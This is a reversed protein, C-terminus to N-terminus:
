DNMGFIMKLCKGCCCLVVSFFDTFIREIRTILTGIFIQSAFFDATFIQWLLVSSCFFFGHFIQEIRTMLTGIWLK